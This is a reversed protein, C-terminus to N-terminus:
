CPMRRTFQILPVPLLDLRVIAPKSKIARRFGHLESFTYRFGSSACCREGAMRHKRSVSLQDNECCVRMTKSM